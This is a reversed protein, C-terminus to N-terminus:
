IAQIIILVQCQMLMILLLIEINNDYLEENYANKYDEFNYQNFILYTMKNDYTEYLPIGGLHNDYMFDEMLSFIEIQQLYSSSSFDVLIGNNTVDKLNPNPNVYNVRQQDWGDQGYVNSNCSTLCMFLFLTKIFYNIKNM